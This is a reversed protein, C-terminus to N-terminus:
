ICRPTASSPPTTRRYRTAMGVAIGQAGNAAPEPLRGAIGGAGQDPTYNARFEVGDEDIEDLLLRAVDDHARKPTATPPRNDGDINGFNGPRRGANALLFRRWGCWPTM